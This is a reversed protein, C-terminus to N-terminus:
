FNNWHRFHQGNGRRKGAYVRRVASEIDYRSVVKVSLPKANRTRDCLDAFVM